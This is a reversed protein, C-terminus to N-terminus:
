LELVYRGKHGRIAAALEKMGGDGLKRRLNRVVSRITSVDLDENDWVDQLLDLHTVYQNPRRALRDLLWFARTHGLHLSRGNWWVRLTSHDLLPRQPRQGSGQELRGIPAGYGNEVEEDVASRIEQQCIAAATLAEELRNLLLALRPGNQPTM